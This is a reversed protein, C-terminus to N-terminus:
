GPAIRSQLPRITQGLGEVEIRHTLGDLFAEDQVHELVVHGVLGVILEFLGDLVIRFQVSPAALPANRANADRCGVAM